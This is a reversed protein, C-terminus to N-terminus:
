NNTANNSSAQHGIKQKLLTMLNNVDGNNETMISNIEDRQTTILSVGEAIIDFIIFKELGKPSKHMMYNIQINHESTGDGLETQVFYENERVEKADLVKVVNGTYKRFNPVYMDILYSTYLDVYAKQQAPDITRWYKGLAFKAIFKTDVSALFIDTLKKEKDHDSLTNNKTIDIARAALDNVFNVAENENANAISTNVLLYSFIVLFLFNIISQSKSSSM